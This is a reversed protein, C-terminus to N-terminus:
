IEGGRRMLDIKSEVVLKVYENLVLAIRVAKRPSEKRLIDLLETLSPLQTGDTRLTHM